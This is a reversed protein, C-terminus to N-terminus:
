VVKREAQMQEFQKLREELEAVTKDKEKIMNEVRQISEEGLSGGAATVILWASDWPSAFHGKHYAVYREKGLPAHGNQLSIGAASRDSMADMAAATTLVEEKKM